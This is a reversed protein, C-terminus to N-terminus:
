KTKITKSYIINGQNSICDFDLHDQYFRMDVYGFTKNDLWKSYPSFYVFNEDLKGGMAGLVLYNVGDKELYEFFHDHGSLHLDVNYKELIPCLKAMVDPLDGWNKGANEDYYGSSVAYCHSIVIVTDEQPIEELQQILWKTQKKDLEATDWLMNIFLLHVNDKDMRFNYKDNKDMFTAKFIPLGNLIADHNGPILRLRTNAIYTRLDDVALKYQSAIMGMDIIDGLLYVADYDAKNIAKLIDIRAEADATSAGWHPDSAFALHLISDDSHNPSVPIEETQSIINMESNDVRKSALTQLAIFFGAWVIIDFISFFCLLITLFNKKFILSLILVAPLTITLATLFRYINHYLIHWHFTGLMGIINSFWIFIIVSFITACIGLIHHKKLFKM